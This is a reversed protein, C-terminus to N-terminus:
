QQAITAFYGEALYVLRRRIAVNGCRLSCVGKYTKYTKKGESRKDINAHKFNSLPLNLEKSWYKKLEEPDQDARLYLECSIKSNDFKYVNNLGSIFFRLTSPDSSGIATEINKKSGEALYLVALTLELIDSNRVDVRRLIEDAEQKATELRKQKQVNHWKVANKRAKVLGKKWNDHLRKKQSKTLEINKFWGSLTSRPIELRSEIEGISLGTKRLNIADSKIHIWKSKM